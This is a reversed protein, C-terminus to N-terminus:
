QIIATFLAIVAGAVYWLYGYDAKTKGGSATSQAVVTPQPKTIPTGCTGFQRAPIRSIFTPEPREAPAGCRACWRFDRPDSVNCTPCTM